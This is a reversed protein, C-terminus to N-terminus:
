PKSGMLGDLAKAIAASLQQQFDPNTLVGADADPSLSGIEIAVAPADVSRLSRAPAQWRLDAALGSVQGFQQQLAQALQQSQDLHNQQVDTWPVLLPRTEQTSPTPRGPPEYSYIAVRPNGAGLNGAHFTLFATPRALNTATERQEFSVNVDGVRTLVIRYKKQTLLALRVRAVLQAVLDKELVGDRSRAGTDDGGHGADLVVTSLPGSPTTTPAGPTPETESPAPTAPPTVEPKPPEPPPNQEVLPAPPKVVDALLVRGSEALVSVFNLGTTAPTVILKPVGDQDDFRVESLYPDQLHVAQELPEVPRDGLILVWQGNSAVTKVTVQDVFQVTLRSGNTLKDIRLTFSNPRFDGIFIRNAGTQFEIPLHTLPTLTTTLFEVPVVWQGNEVRVPERLTIVNKNLRVKSDNLRFELDSTEFRVKLSNKKEQIGSVKGVLNLVQILPLYKGGQIMTIPLVHSANPMYLVFNDSRMARAPWFLLVLGLAATLALALHPRPLSRLTKTM